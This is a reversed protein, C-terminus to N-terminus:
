KELSKMMKVDTESEQTGHTGHKYYIPRFSYSLDPVADNREFV